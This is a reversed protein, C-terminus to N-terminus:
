RTFSTVLFLLIIIFEVCYILTEIDV